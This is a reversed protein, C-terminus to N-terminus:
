EASKKQIISNITKEMIKGCIDTSTLSSMTRIKLNRVQEKLREINENISKQSKLLEKRKEINKKTNVNEELDKETKELNKKNKELAKKDNELAKTKKDLVEKKKELSIDKKTIKAKNLFGTVNKAAGKTAVETCFNIISNFGKDRAKNLAGGNSEPDSIYDLIYLYIDGVSAIESCLAAVGSGFLVLSSGAAIAASGPTTTFGSGLMSVGALAYGGMSINFCLNSLKKANGEITQVHFHLDDSVNSWWLKGDETRIYNVFRKQSIACFLTPNILSLIYLWSVEIVESSIDNETEKKKLAITACDDKTTDNIRKAKNSNLGNSHATVTKGEGDQRSSGKLYVDSQVNPSYNDTVNEIKMASAVAPYTDYTIVFDLNIIDDSKCCLTLRGKNTIEIFLPLDDPSVDLKNNILYSFCLAIDETLTFCYVAIHLIVNFNHHKHLIKQVQREAERIKLKVKESDLYFSFAIDSCDIFIPAPSEIQHGKKSLVNSYLIRQCHIEGVFKIFEETSDSSNVSSVSKKHNSSSDVPVIAGGNIYPTFVITCYVDLIDEQKEQRVEKKVIAANTDNM